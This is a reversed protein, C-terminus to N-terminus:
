GQMRVAAYDPLLRGAWGPKRGSLGRQKHGRPSVCALSITSSLSSFINNPNQKRVCPAAALERALHAWDDQRAQWSGGELLRGKLHRQYGKVRGCGGGCDGVVVVVVVVVVMVRVSVRLHCTLTFGARLNVVTSIETEETM